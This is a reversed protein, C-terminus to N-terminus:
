INFQTDNQTEKNTDEIGTAIVTVFVDDGMNNDITTGFIINADEDVVDNILKIGENIEM